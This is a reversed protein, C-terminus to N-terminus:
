LIRGNRVIEVDYSDSAGAAEGGGKVFTVLQRLGDHERFLGAARDYKPLAMQSETLRKTQGGAAGLVWGRQTLWAVADGPVGFLAGDVKMASGPIPPLKDAARPAFQGIDAGALFTVGYQSGIYLGDDVAKNMTIPAPMLVYDTAPRTLGYNMAQTALLVNGDASYIRGNYYELHTAPAPPEMHQTTLLKGAQHTGVYSTAVGSPVNQVWYLVDGNTPTVYVRAVIGAPTDLGSIAIGGGDAVQVVTAVSAGSERGAADQHTLAVMYTGAALGGSAIPAAVPAPPVPIGWAGDVGDAITGTVSGNSYYVIGNIEVCFVEANGIGARLVSANMAADLLMLNGAAVYCTAYDCSWLSHTNVGAVALKVASRQSLRGGYAAGKQTVGGNHIDLNVIRRATGPLLDTEASVQDVGEPFRLAVPKGQSVM